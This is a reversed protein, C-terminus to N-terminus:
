LDKTINLFEEFTIGHLKASGSDYQDRKDLLLIFRDWLLKRPHKKYECVPCDYLYPADSNCEPCERFFM